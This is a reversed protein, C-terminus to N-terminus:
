TRKLMQLADLYKIMPYSDHQRLNQQDLLYQGNRGVFSSAVHREIM